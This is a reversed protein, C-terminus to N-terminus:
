ETPALRHARLFLHVRGTECLSCILGRWNLSGFFLSMLERHTTEESRSLLKVDRLKIEPSSGGADSRLTSRQIDARTASIELPQVASQFAGDERQVSRLTVRGGRRRALQQTFSRRSWCLAKGGWMKKRSLFRSQATIRARCQSRIWTQLFAPRHHHNHMLAGEM